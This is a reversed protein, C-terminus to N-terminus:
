GFYIIVFTIWYHSTSSSVGYSVLNGNWAWISQSQYLVTNTCSIAATDQLMNLELNLRICSHVQLSSHNDCAVYSQTAGTSLLCMLKHCWWWKLATLSSAADPWWVTQQHIIANLLLRSLSCIHPWGLGVQLLGCTLMAVTYGQSRPPCLMQHIAVHLLEQLLEDTHSSLTHLGLTM